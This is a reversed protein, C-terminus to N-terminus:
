RGDRAAQHGATRIDADIADTLMAFDAVTLRGVEAPPIGYDRALM